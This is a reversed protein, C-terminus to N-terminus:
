QTLEEAKNQDYGLYEKFLYFADNNSLIGDANIDAYVKRDNSIFHKTPKNDSDYSVSQQLLADIDSLQVDDNAGVVDGVSYGTFIIKLYTADEDTVDVTIKDNVNTVSSEASTWVANEYGGTTKMVTIVANKFGGATYHTPAANRTVTPWDAADTISIAPVLYTYVVDNTFNWPNEVEEGAATKNYVNDSKQILWTKVMFDLSVYQTDSLIQPDSDGDTKGFTRAGTVTMNLQYTYGENLSDGSVSVTFLELEEELSITAIVYEKENESLLTDSSAQTTFDFNVNEVETNDTLNIVKAVIGFTTPSYDVSPTIFNVPVTLIQGKLIGVMQNEDQYMDDTVVAYTYGGEVFEMNGDAAIMTIAVNTPEPNDGPIVSAAGSSYRGILSNANADQAGYSNTKQDITIALNSVRLDNTIIDANSLCGLIGGADRYATIKVDDVTCSSIENMKSNAYGLIGGVKDGNDYKGNYENPTAILTVNEVHCNKITGDGYGVIGAVYRNGKVVANKVTINEITAGYATSGALVAIGNSSQGTNSVIVHEVVAGDITLNKIIGNTAGFLGASTYSPERGTVNLNYITKDNGDFTGAFKPASDASLGIPTWPQNQLDIDATLKYSAGKAPVETGAGNQVKGDANVADCVAKLEAINGILITGDSDGTLLYTIGAKNEPTLVSEPNLAVFCGTSTMEQSSSSTGHDKGYFYDVKVGDASEGFAGTFSSEVFNIMSNAAGIGVLGGIVANEDDASLTGKVESNSVLLGSNSSAGILGGFQWGGIIDIDSICDILSLTDSEGMESFGVIGGLNCCNGYAEDTAKIYSADNGIISANTITTDGSYYVSGIIGGVKYMADIEIKGTILINSIESNVAEGILTGTGQAGRTNTVMGNQIKVNEITLNSISAGAVKGFLGCQYYSEAANLYNVTGYAGSTGSAIRLNSIKHYGGDFNGKFIYSSSSSVGKGSTGIPTWEENNLDIDTILTVTKGAYNNGANVSDRFAKLDAETCILYPSATTGKGVLSYSKVVNQSDLTMASDVTNTITVSDQIRMTHTAPVNASYAVTAYEASSSRLSGGNLDLLAVEPDTGDNSTGDHSVYIAYKDTGEISGANVQVIYNNANVSPSQIWIGTNTGKISGGNVILEPRAGDAGNAFVRIARYTSEIFGGNVVLKAHTNKGNTLVDVGYAMDTGGLHKITGGNITATARQVSIVSSYSNWDRDNIAYLTIKGNGAKDELTFEAGPNLSIFEWNKTASETVAITQGNLDLVVPNTESVSVSADSVDFSDSLKVYGGSTFAEGLTEIDSVLYPDEETGSGTLGASAPAAFVLCLVFLVAAASLMRQLVKVSSRAAFVSEAGRKDNM